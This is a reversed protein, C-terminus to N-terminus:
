HLTRHNQQCEAVMAGLEAPHFPKRLVLCGQEALTENVADTSHGTIVMIPLGPRRRRAEQVLASGHMGPMSLDTVMIDIRDERDMVALASAGSSVDIVQFGIGRLYDAAMALLDVDDDVLLLTGAVSAVPPQVEASLPDPQDAVAAARPLYVIVSTGQGQASVIRVTGGHQKALGYVMALGLGSGEGVEKTTFFPEFAHEKVEETMGVGTDTVTLVIYDTAEIDALQPNKRDDAAMNRAEISITGSGPMADRANITLNILAVEIQTPDALAPWLDPELCLDIRIAPPVTRVLLDHLGTVLKNLDTARVHLRQRRGISLLHSTLHVGREASKLANRLYRTVKEGVNGDLALEIYGIVSTLLNNFDHAVGGTLQGIVEMKQAQRLQNETKLHEDIEHRLQDNVETLAQTREAVRAELSLNAQLLAEASAEQALQIREESLAHAIAVRRAEVAGVVAPGLRYLRDKLLYDTAGHKMCEAAMEDGQMGTVMILPIKLKREKLHALAGLANFGPLSYDALIVDITDNLAALFASESAAVCIDSTFGFRLLERSILQADNPDDELILVNLTSLM